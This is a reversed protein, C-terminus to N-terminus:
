YKSLVKDIKGHKNMKLLAAIVNEQDKPSLDKWRKRISVIMDHMYNNISPSYVIFTTLLEWIIKIYFKVGQMKCIILFGKFSKTNSFQYLKLEEFKSELTAM